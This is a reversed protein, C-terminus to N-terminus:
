GQLIVCNYNVRVKQAFKTNISPLLKMCNKGTLGLLTYDVRHLEM